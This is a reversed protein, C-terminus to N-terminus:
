TLKFGALYYFSIGTNGLFNKVAGGNQEEHLYNNKLVYITGRVDFHAGPNNVFCHDNLNYLQGNAASYYPKSM